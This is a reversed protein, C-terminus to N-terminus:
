NLAESIVQLNDEMASLYTLGNEIHKATVSQCSNMTLIKAGTKDSIADAIGASSNEITIICPLSLTQTKEILSALTSFSAETEASCGPFAAFYEIGYDETLYRFPFRDAFLLTNRKAGAVCEEFQRDLDALQKIYADANSRYTDANTGDAESLANCIADVATQARRLSLWIHEDAEAEEEHSTQMGEVTEEELVGTVDILTLVRLSANGPSNLANEIWRDSVGGIHIFVDAGAITLIDNATPEFSHMDTGNKDLYIVNCLDGTISRTWDYVPFVTTVVTLRDDDTADTVAPTCGAFTLVTLLVTLIIALFKKM